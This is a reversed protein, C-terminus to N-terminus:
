VLRTILFKKMTDSSFTKIKSSFQNEIMANFHVFKAFAKSKSELLYLWTFRSYHDVFLSYYRFGNVSNFPAFGWLDSHVLEFPSSATFESNPFHLNHMKGFLRHPFSQNVTNPKNLISKVNPFLSYLAQDHPHGHRM